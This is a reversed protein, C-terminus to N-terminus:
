TVAGPDVTEATRQSVQRLLRARVLTLL